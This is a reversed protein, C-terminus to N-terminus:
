RKCINEKFKERFKETIPDNAYGQGLHRKGEIATTFLYGYTRPEKTMDNDDGTNQNYNIDTVGEKTFVYEDYLISAFLATYIINRLKYKACPVNEELEARPTPDPTTNLTSDVEVGPAVPPKPLNQYKSAITSLPMPGGVRPIPRTSFATSGSMKSLRLNADAEAAAAAAREADQQKADRMIQLSSPLRRPRLTDRKTTAAAAAAAVGGPRGRAFMSKLM